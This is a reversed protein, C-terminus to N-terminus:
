EELEAIEFQAQEEETPAPIRAVKYYDGDEIITYQQNENCWNAVQSYETQAQESNELVSKEIQWNKYM